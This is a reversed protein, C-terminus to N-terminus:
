LICEFYILNHSKPNDCVDDLSAVIKAGSQPIRVWLANRVSTLITGRGIYVSDEPSLNKKYNKQM